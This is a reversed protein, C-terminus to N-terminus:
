AKKLGLARLVQSKGLTVGPHLKGVEDAVQKFVQQPPLDRPPVVAGWIAVAANRALESKPGRSTTIKKDTRQANFWTEFDGNNLDVLARREGDGLILVQGPVDIDAGSWEHRPILPSQNSYHGRWRAEILGAHCAEIIKLKAASLSIGLLDATERVANTLPKGAM